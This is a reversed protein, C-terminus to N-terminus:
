YRIRIGKIKFSKELKLVLFKREESWQELEAIDKLRDLFYNIIDSNSEGGGFTPLLGSLSIEGGQNHNNKGRSM